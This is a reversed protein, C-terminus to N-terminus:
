RLIFRLPHVTGVHQDIIRGMCGWRRCKALANHIVKAADLAQMAYTTFYLASWGGAILGRAFVVYHERREVIVGSVLLTFSLTLAVASISTPGMKPIAYNLLLALGVVLILIGLKNFWNGGVLAEWEAGTRSPRPPEPVFPVPRAAPTPPMIPAPPAVPELKPKPLEPVVPPKPAPQPPPLVPAPEAKPPPPAVPAEMVRAPGERRLEAVAEEVQTMRKILKSIESPEIHGRVLMEVREEMESMRHSFVVWLVLLVVVVVFLVFSEM